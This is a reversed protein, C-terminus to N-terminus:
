RSACRNFRGSVIRGRFLPGRIVRRERYSRYRVVRGAQGACSDAPIESEAIGTDGYEVRESFPTFGRVFRPFGRRLCQGNDCKADAHQTDIGVLAVFIAIVLYKM